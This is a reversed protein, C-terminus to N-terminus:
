SNNENGCDLADAITKIEAITYTRQQPPKNNFTRNFPKSAQSLQKENGNM